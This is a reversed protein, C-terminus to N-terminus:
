KIKQYEVMYDITSSTFGTKRSVPTISLKKYGKEEMDKVALNVVKTDENYTIIFTDGINYNQAEVYKSYKQVEKNYMEEQSSTGFPFSFIMVVFFLGLLVSGFIEKGRNSM